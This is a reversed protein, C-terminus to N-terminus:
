KKGVAQKLNIEEKESKKFYFSLNNIQLKKEKRTYINLAIFQGRLVSEAADM